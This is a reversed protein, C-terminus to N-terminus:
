SQTSGAVHMTRLRGNSDWWGSISVYNKNETNRVYDFTEEPTHWTGDNIWEDRIPNTIAEFQHTPVGDMYLESSGMLWDIATAPNDTDDYSHSYWIQDVTDYIDIEYIGDGIFVYYDYSHMSTADIWTSTTNWMLEHEDYIPVSLFIKSDDRYFLTLEIIDGDRNLYIEREQYITNDQGENSFSYPNISGAVYMISNAYATKRYYQVWEGYFETALTSQQTFPLFHEAQQSFVNDVQNSLNSKVKKNKDNYMENINPYFTFYELPYDITINDPNKNFFRFMTKPMQLLVVKEDNRIERPALYGAHEETNVQLNNLQSAPFLIRILRPDKNEDNELLWAEPFVISILESENLPPSLVIEQHGFDPTIALKPSKQTNEPTINLKEDASVTAVFAISMLLLAMFLAGIRSMEKM